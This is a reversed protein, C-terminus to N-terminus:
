TTRSRLASDPGVGKGAPQGPATWSSACMAPASISGATVTSGRWGPVM